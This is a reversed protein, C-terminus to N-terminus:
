AATALSVGTDEEVIRGLRETFTQKSFPRFRSSRMFERAAEKYARIRQPPLGKLFDRLDSYNRFQRM